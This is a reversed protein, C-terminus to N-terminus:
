LATKRVASLRQAQNKLSAGHVRESWDPAFSFGITGQDRANERAQSSNGNNLKLEWQGHEKHYKAKNLNATTIVKTKIRRCEISFRELM